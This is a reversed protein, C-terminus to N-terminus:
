CLQEWTTSSEYKKIRWHADCNCSLVSLLKCFYVPIVSFHPIIIAKINATTCENLFFVQSLMCQHQHSVTFRATPLYIEAPKKLQWQVGLSAVARCAAFRVFCIKFDGCVVFRVTSSSSFLSLFPAYTVCQWVNRWLVSHMMMQIWVSFLILIVLFMETWRKVKGIIM